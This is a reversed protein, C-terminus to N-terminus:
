GFKWCVDEVFYYSNRVFNYSFLDLFGEVVGEKGLVGLEEEKVEKKIVLKWFMFFSSFM